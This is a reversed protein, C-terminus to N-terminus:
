PQPVEPSSAAPTVGATRNLTASKQPGGMARFAYDELDARSRWHEGLRRALSRTAEIPDPAGTVAGGVAVRVAGAALVEDLNAATIGGAAFWPTAREDHVPLVEAARRVLDLGPVDRGFVPGVTIWDAGESVAHHLQEEDHVSRGVLSWRGLGARADSLDGDTSGLHLLDARLQEAVGTNRGVCLLARHDFAPQVVAELAALLDADDATADRVQVMDAGVDFLHDVFPVFHDFGGRLDTIVQLRALRLNDKLGILATM